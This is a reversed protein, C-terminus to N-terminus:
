GSAKMIVCVMVNSYTLLCIRGLKV